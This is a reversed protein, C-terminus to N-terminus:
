NAFKRSKKKVRGNRLSLQRAVSNSIFFFQTFWFLAGNWVVTPLQPIKWGMAAFCILIEPNAFTLEQSIFSIKRARSLKDGRFLCSKEPERFNIGVFNKRNMWERFNIGEVNKRNTWERFNIRAFYLFKAFKDARSLKEGRFNRGKFYWMRNWQDWLHICTTYSYYNPTWM